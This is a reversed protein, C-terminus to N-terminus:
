SWVSRVCDYGHHIFLTSHSSDLPIHFLCSPRPYVIDAAMSHYGGLRLGEEGSHKMTCVEHIGAGYEREVYFEDHNAIVYMLIM